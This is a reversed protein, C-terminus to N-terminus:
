TFLSVNTQSIKCKWVFLPSLRMLKMMFGSILVAYSDCKAHMHLMNKESSTLRHCTCPMTRRYLHESIIQIWDEIQYTTNTDWLCFRCLVSLDFSWCLSAIKKCSYCGAAQGNVLRVFLPYIFQFAQIELLFDDKIGELFRTYINQDKCNKTRWKVDDM